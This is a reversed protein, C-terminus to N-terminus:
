NKKGGGLIGGLGKKLKEAPNEKGGDGSTGGAAPNIGKV